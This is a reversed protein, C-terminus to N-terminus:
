IRGSLETRLLGLNYRDPGRVATGIRGISLVSQEAGPKDILYIVNVAVLPTKHDEHFIVTLGNPLQYKEVKLEPVWPKRTEVPLPETARLAVVQGMLVAFTLGLNFRGQGVLGM